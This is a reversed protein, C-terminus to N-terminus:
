GYHTIKGRSDGRHMKWTTLFTERMSDRYAPNQHCLKNHPLRTQAAISSLQVTAEVGKEEEHGRSLAHNKSRRKDIDM